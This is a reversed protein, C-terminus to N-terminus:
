RNIKTEQSVGWYIEFYAQTVGSKALYLRRTQYLKVMYKNNNNCIDDCEDPMPLVARSHNATYKVVLICNAETPSEVQEMKWRSVHHEGVSPGRGESGDEEDKIGFKQRVM